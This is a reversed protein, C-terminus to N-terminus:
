ALFEHVAKSMEQRLFNVKEKVMHQTVMAELSLSISQNLRDDISELAM